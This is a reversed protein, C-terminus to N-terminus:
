LKWSEQCNSITYKNRPIPGQGVELISFDRIFDSLHAELIVFFLPASVRLLYLLRDPTSDDLIDFLLERLCLLWHTHIPSGARGASSLDKPVCSCSAGSQIAIAGLALIYWCKHWRIDREPVWKIVLEDKVSLHRLLIILVLQLLFHLFISLSVNLLFFLSELANM